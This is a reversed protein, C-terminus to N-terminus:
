FEGDEDDDQSGKKTDSFGRLFLDNKDELIVVGFKKEIAQLAKRFEKTNLTENSLGKPPNDKSEPWLYGCRWCTGKPSLVQIPRTCSPCPKAPYYKSYLYTLISNFVESKVSASSFSKKVILESFKVGEEPPDLVVMNFTSIRHQTCCDVYGKQRYIEWDKDFDKIAKLPNKPCHNDMFPIETIEERSNFGCVVKNGNKGLISELEKKLIKMDAFPKINIRIFTMNDIDSDTVPLSFAKSPRFTLLYYTSRLFKWM